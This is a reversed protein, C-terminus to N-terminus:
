SRHGNPFPYRRNEVSRYDVWLRWAARAHEEWRRASPPMGERKLKAILRRWGAEDEHDWLPPKWATTNPAPTANTQEIWRALIRAAETPRPPVQCLQLAVCAGSLTAVASLPRGMQAARQRAAQIIEGPQSGGERARGGTWHTTM